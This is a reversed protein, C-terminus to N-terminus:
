MELCRVLFFCMLIIQEFVDLAVNTMLLTFCKKVVSHVLIEIINYMLECDYSMIHYELM